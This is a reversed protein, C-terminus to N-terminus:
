QYKAKLKMAKGKKVLSQYKRRYMDEAARRRQINESGGMKGLNLAASNYAVWDEDTYNVPKGQSAAPAQIISPTARKLAGAHVVMDSPLRMGPYVTHKNHPPTRRKRKPPATESTTIKKSM